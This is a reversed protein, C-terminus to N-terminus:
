FTFSMLLEAQSINASNQIMKQEFDKVVNSKVGAIKKLKESM